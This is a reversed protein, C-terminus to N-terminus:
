STEEFRSLEVNKRARGPTFVRGNMAVYAGPALLQVAAAAFGINFVADSHRL